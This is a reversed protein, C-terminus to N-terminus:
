KAPGYETAEFLLRNEFNPLYKLNIWLMSVGSSSDEKYVAKPIHINLESTISVTNVTKLFETAILLLVESARYGGLSDIPNLKTYQGPFTILPYIIMETNGKTALFLRNVPYITVVWNKVLDLNMEKHLTNLQKAFLSGATGAIDLQGNQCDIQLLNGTSTTSVPVYWTGMPILVSEFDSQTAYNQFSEPTITYLQFPKRLVMEFTDLGLPSEQVAIIDKWSNLNNAVLQSVEESSIDSCSNNALLAQNGLFAFIILILTSLQKRIM